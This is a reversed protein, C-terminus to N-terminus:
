YKYRLWQVVESWKPKKGTMLIGVRYIKSALLFVLVMTAINLIFSTLVEWLPVDTMAMRAPMVIISAFPVISSVKGLPSGPNTQMSIAIFFPVMILMMIPWMGSQADQENDFIAGVAAFLGMFIILGVFYNVLFYLLYVPSMSLVLEPPLVFFTTSILILVPSIWIAMQLLATVSSGLIKGTMLERSDVSSLLIEVIRNNKEQVVSRQMMSGTFLLSFYLLFAFLFSLIQNGYGAEQIKSEKSVKFGNFGVNDSAFKIDSSTFGKGSFYISSLAKNIAPKIKDQVKPNNPTKSYYEVKKEKLAELPIYVVGTLKEDVIEQRVKNLYESLRAKELTKFEITYSKDKIFDEGDFESKVKETMDESASIVQLAVKGEGSFSIFYTQLMLIGFMFVPILLTMLIFSKSFLKERLERKMVALTKNNLM